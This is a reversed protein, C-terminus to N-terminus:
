NLLHSQIRSYPNTENIVNLFGANLIKLELHAKQRNNIVVIDVYFFSQGLFTVTLFKIFSISLFGKNNVGPASHKSTNAVL